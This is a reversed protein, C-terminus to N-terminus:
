PNILHHLSPLHPSFFPLLLWGALQKKEGAEDMILIKAFKFVTHSDYVQVEDTDDTNLM